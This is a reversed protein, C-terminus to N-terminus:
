AHSGMVFKYGLQDPPGTHAFFNLANFTFFAREQVYQQLGALIRVEGMPPPKILIDRHVRDLFLSGM